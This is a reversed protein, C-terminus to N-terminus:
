LKVVEDTIWLGDHIEPHQAADIGALVAIRLAEPSTAHTEAFKGRKHTEQVIIEQQRPSFAILHNVHATGGYKIFDVGKDLYKNIAVRLSDPTMDLLEEGSGQTIMDNMREEFLT